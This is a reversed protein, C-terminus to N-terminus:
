LIANDAKVMGHFYMDGLHGPETEADLTGNFYCKLGCSGGWVSLHSGKAGDDMVRLYDVPNFLLTNKRQTFVSFANVIEICDNDACM